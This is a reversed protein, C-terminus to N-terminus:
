EERKSAGYQSLDTPTDEALRLHKVEHQASNERRHKPTDPPWITNTIIQPDDLDVSEAKMGKTLLGQTTQTHAEM